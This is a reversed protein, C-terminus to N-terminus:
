LTFQKKLRKLRKLEKNKSKLQERLVANGQLLKEIKDNREKSLKLFIEFDIGNQYSVEQVDNNNNNIVSIVPSEAYHLLQIM